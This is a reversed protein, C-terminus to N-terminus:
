SRVDVPYQQSGFAADANRATAGCAFGPSGGAARSADATGNPGASSRRSQAAARVPEARVAVPRPAPPVAPTAPKPEVHSAPPAEPPPPAAPRPPAM